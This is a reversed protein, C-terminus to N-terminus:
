GAAPNRDCRGTAIGLRYVQGAYQRLAHATDHAGRAEVRQVASLLVPASVDRLPLAGIWPFLDREMLRLWKQSYTDSWGSRQTAHFERAVAEFTTASSASKSLKDAKRSLM